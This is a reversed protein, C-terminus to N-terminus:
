GVVGAAFSVAAAHSASTVPGVGAGDRSGIPAAAEGAGDTACEM